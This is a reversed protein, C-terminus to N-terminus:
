KIKKFKYACGEFCLYNIPSLHMKGNEIKYNEIFTGAPKERMLTFGPCGYIMTLTANELKYTGNTCKTFQTSTFTGDSKFTYTYGNKVSIWKTAMGGDGEFSEALQWTGVIGTNTPKTEKDNNCSIQSILIVVLLIIKKM